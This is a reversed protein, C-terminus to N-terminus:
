GEGYHSNAYSEESKRKEEETQFTATENGGDCGDAMMFLVVLAMLEM